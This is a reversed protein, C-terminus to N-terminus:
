LFARMNKFRELTEPIQEVSIPDITTLLKTSTNGYKSYYLFIRTEHQNSLLCFPYYITIIPSNDTNFPKYFHSPGKKDSNCDSKCRFTGMLNPNGLDWPMVQINCFPCIPLSM